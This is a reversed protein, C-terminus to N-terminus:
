EDSAERSGRVAACAERLARRTLVQVLERRYEDTARLDTIPRAEQRALKSATEIAAEDARTDLLSQSAKVAFLPVPAVAGLVIRANRCTDGSMELYAAVSAVGLSNSARRRFKQYSAAARDPKFPILIQTIMERAQRVTDRNGLFFDELAVVRGGGTSRLEVSAGLASLMPPFDGCAVASCINGALTATNRIQPSAFKVIMAALESLHERVVDSREVTTATCGAGICVHRDRVVIRELEAIGRISVVHKARRLGTDIDVVLDTGGALIWAQPLQDLLRCAEKLSGARHYEYSHM